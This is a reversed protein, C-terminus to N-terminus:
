AFPVGNHLMSYIFSLSNFMLDNQNKVIMTANPVNRPSPNIFSLYPDCGYFYIKELQVSM